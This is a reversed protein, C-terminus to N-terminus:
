DRSCFSFPLDIFIPYQFQKCHYPPSGLPHSNPWFLLIAFFSRKHLYFLQLVVLSSIIVLLHFLSLFSMGDVALFFFFFNILLVYYNLFRLKSLKLSTSNPLILLMWLNRAWYRYVKRNTQSSWAPMQWTIYFLM